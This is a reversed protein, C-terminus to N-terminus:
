LTWSPLFFTRMENREKTGSNQTVAGKRGETGRGGQMNHKIKNEEKKCNERLLLASSGGSLGGGGGLLGAVDLGLDGLTSGAVLEIGENVLLEGSTAEIGANGRAGALTTASVAVDELTLLELEVQM